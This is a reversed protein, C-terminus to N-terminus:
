GFVIGGVVVIDVDLGESCVDGVVRCICGYGFICFDYEM